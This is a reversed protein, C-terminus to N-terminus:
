QGPHDYMNLRSCCNQVCQNIGTSKHGVLALAAFTPCALRANEFTLRNMAINRKVVTLTVFILQHTGTNRPRAGLTQDERGAVDSDSFEAPIAEVEDLVERPFEGPLSFEAIILPLDVAPDRRSGLVKVIRGVRGDGPRMSLEFLVKTGETIDQFSQAWVCPLTHLM